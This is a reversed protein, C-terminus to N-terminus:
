PKTAPRSRKIPAFGAKTMAEVWEKVEPDDMAKVLAIQDFEHAGPERMEDAHVVVSALKCLLAPTPKLVDMFEPPKPIPPYMWILTPIGVALCLAFFIGLKTELHMRPKLLRDIEDKAEDYNM